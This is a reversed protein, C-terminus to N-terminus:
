DRRVVDEAAFEGSERRRLLPSAGGRGLVPDGLRTSRLLNRGFGPDVLHNITYQPRGDYQLFQLCSM